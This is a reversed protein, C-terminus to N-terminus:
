AFREFTRQMDFAAGLVRANAEVGQKAAMQEIAEDTFDAGPSATRAASADFRALNARIGSLASNIATM